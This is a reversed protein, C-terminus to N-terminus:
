PHFRTFYMRTEHETIRTVNALNLSLSTHRGHKLPSRKVQTTTEHSNVDSGDPSGRYSHCDFPGTIFSRLMNVRGRSEM